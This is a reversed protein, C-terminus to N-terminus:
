SFTLYVGAYFLNLILPISFLSQLGFSGVLSLESELGVGVSVRICKFPIGAFSEGSFDLFM